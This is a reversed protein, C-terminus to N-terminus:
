ADLFADGANRRREHRRQPDPLGTIASPESM